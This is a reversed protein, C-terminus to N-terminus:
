YTPIPNPYTFAFFFFPSLFARPAHCHAHTTKGCPVAAHFQAPREGDSIQHRLYNMGDKGEEYSLTCAADSRRLMGASQEAEKEEEDRKYGFLM